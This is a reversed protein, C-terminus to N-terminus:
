SPAENGDRAEVGRDGRGGKQDTFVNVETAAPRQTKGLEEGGAVGERRGAQLLIVDARM